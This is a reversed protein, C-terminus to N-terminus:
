NIQVNMFNVLGGQRTSGIFDGAIVPKAEPAPAYFCNVNDAGMKIPLSIDLPKSLNAKYKKGQSKITIKM